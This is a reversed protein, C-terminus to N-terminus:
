LRGRTGGGGLLGRVVVVGCMGKILSCIVYLNQYLARVFAWPPENQLEHSAPSPFYEASVEPTNYLYIKANGSPSKGSNASQGCNEHRRGGADVRAHVPTSQADLGCRNGDFHAWSPRWVRVRQQTVTRFHDRAGLNQPSAVRFYSEQGLFLGARRPLTRLRTENIRLYM